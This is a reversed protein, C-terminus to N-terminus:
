QLSDNGRDDGYLDGSDHLGHDGDVMRDFVVRSNELTNESEHEVGRKGNEKRGFKMSM